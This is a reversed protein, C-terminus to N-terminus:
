VGVEVYSVALDDEGGVATEGVVLRGLAELGAEGVALHHADVGGVDDPAEAGEVAEALLHWRLCILVYLQLPQM